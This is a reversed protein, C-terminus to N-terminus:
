GPSRLFASTDFISCLCLLDSCVYFLCYMMTFLLEAAQMGHMGYEHTDLATSHQAIWAQGFGLSRCECWLVCPVCVPSVRLSLFVPFFLLVPSSVNDDYLKAATPGARLQVGGGRCHSLTHPVFM